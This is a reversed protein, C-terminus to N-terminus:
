QFRAAPVEIWTAKAVAIVAGHEGIVASAAFHKKGDRALPWGLMVCPEGVRVDGDIRVSMQGLVLAKGEGAPLMPFASTCDLAAWIFVPDVLGCREGELSADAMWPAAVATTDPLPGPFIRLGDGEDRDPGCVFCGPFPHQTFGSCHQAAAQAQDFSPPPPCELDLVDAWGQAVLQEDALLQARGNEVQLALDQQLPPPLFLRVTAAHISDHQATQRLAEGLLGCVYGGNGSEPPGCFRRKIQILKNM